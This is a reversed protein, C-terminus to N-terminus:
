IAKTEGAVAALGFYVQPGFMGVNNGSIGYSKALDEEDSDPKPDLVTVSVKGKSAIRYENLLDEVQRAHTKLHVPMEAASDSFFLKLAVKRDLSQLMNKTGDSLTYLKQETFDARIRANSLIVNAAILIATLLLLGIIGGSVKKAASNAGTTKNENTM